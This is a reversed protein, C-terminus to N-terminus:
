GPVAARNTSTRFTVASLTSSPRLPSPPVTKFVERSWVLSSANFAARAPAWAATGAAMAVVQSRRPETKAASATKLKLSSAPKERRFRAQNSIVAGTRRQCELCHCMSIRSPEGEITLNAPFRTKTQRLRTGITHTLLLFLRGSQSPRAASRRVDLRLPQAVDVRV